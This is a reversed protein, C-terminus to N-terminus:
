DFSSHSQRRVIAAVELLILVTGLGLNVSGAIRTQLRGQKQKGTGVELYKNVGATTQRSCTKGLMVDVFGLAHM